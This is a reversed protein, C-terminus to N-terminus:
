LYMPASEVPASPFHGPVRPLIPAFTPRDNEGTSNKALNSVFIKRYLIEYLEKTVNVYVAAVLLMKAALFKGFYTEARQPAESTRVSWLVGSDAIHYPSVVMEMGSKLRRRHRSQVNVRQWAYTSYTPASYKCTCAHMTTNCPNLFWESHDVLM